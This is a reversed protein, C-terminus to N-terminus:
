PQTITWQIYTGGDLQNKGLFKTARQGLEAWGKSFLKM